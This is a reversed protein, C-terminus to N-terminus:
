WAIRTLIDAFGALNLLRMNDRDSAFNARKSPHALQDWGIKFSM